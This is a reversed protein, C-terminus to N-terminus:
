PQFIMEYTLPTTGTTTLKDWTVVVKFVVDSDGATIDTLKVQANENPLFTELEKGIFYKTVNVMDAESCGTSLCSPETGAATILMDDYDGANVSSISARLLEAINWARQAATTEISTEEAQQQTRLMMSTSGLMGITLIFLAVMVEILTFGQNNILKNM